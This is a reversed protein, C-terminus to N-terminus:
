SECECERRPSMVIYVICVLPLFRVGPRRRSARLHDPAPPSVEWVFGDRGALLATAITVTTGVADPVAELEETSNSPESSASPVWRSGGDEDPLPLAALPPPKSPTPPPAVRALDDEVTSCCPMRPPGIM